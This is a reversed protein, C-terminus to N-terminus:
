RGCCVCGLWCDHDLEGDELAGLLAHDDLRCGGFLEAV